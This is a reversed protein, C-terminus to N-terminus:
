IEVFGEIHYGVKKDEAEFLIGNDGPYPKRHDHENKTIERPVEKPFADCRKIFENQTEKHLHICNLCQEFHFM